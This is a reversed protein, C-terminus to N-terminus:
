WVRRTVLDRAFRWLFSAVSRRGVQIKATGTMGPRLDRSPELWADAAFFRPPNIGTLQEKQGLAPDLPVWDASISHIVGSVPLWRSQTKLRLPLGSRVDHMAYEPVYIRARIASDDVVEAIPAGEELDQGVLDQLRPTAVVGAIPSSVDLQGTKQSLFQEQEALNDREHEATGFGSYRLQSQIARASGVRLDAQAKALDSQLDLNELTLIPQGAAVRQGEDVLVHAGTGQVAAHVFAHQRPELVFSADQFDPWIPAFLLLLLGAALAATRLPTLWNGVREKKDLYLLGTFRAFSHIRKRFVWYGAVLAPIFAWAPSYAHLVHYSFFMLFTLLLYGYIGSLVAYAIYFLRRWRPVYELEYSMGFFKRIWGSLYASTREKFDPEEILECFIYYGDLKILPNLNLISVGLGTVMMIKYAFNHIMMGPVTTWWIITAFFCLILDGWIGAIVTAIRQWKGGYIWVQTIDCFFSPAFYMISFGMSEVNAGFHKCTLGHFSEHFFAMAAFLFWFEALDGTTKTTFNYFEFSDRWIEGFREAWMGAMLAFMVLAVLTFWWTYVWRLWPYIKSIYDDAHPWQFIIIDSFDGVNFRSRKIRQGRLKQHLTINREIPSQYFLTTNRQIFEAFERVNEESYYVGTKEHVLASIDAYSRQGDFAQLFTWQVPEFRIFNEAGPMKAIVTPKRNEVQEKAIVRPDLKPISHRLVREPLEP